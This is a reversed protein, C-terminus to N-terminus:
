LVSVILKMYQAIFDALIREEKDNIFDYSHCKTNTKLLPKNWIMYM